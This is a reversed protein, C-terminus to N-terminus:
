RDAPRDISAGFWEEILARGILARSSLLVNGDALAAALDARTFWRLDTVEDGDPVLETTEARARYGLMLSRPMPWPMSGRYEVQGVVVGAEEMAERAVAHEASEGPEVFGALVSMAGPRWTPGRGLLLRDDADVIAMIVAPDTRPFHNLEDDVCRRVWGAEAIETPRGCRPCHGADTHWNALGVAEVALGFALMVDHEAVDAGRAAEALAMERPTLWTLGDALAPLDAGDAGPLVRALYSADGHEGLFYHDTADPAAIGDAEQVTLLAPVQGAVVARGAGVLLVRTEPLSLAEDLLGPKSRRHAARDHAVYALPLELM